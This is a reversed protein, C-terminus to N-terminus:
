HALRAAVDLDSARSADRRDGSHLAGRISQFSVHLFNPVELLDMYKYVLQARIKVWVALNGIGLSYRFLIIM